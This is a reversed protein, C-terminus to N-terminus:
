DYKPEEYPEEAEMMAWILLSEILVKRIQRITTAIELSQTIELEHDPDLLGLYKMSLIESCSLLGQVTIMVEEVSYPLLNLDDLEEPTAKTLVLDM